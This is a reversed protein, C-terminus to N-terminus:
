SKQVQVAYVQSKGLLSFDLDLYMLSFFILSLFFLFLLIIQFLSTLFKTNLDYFKSNPNALQPIIWKVLM